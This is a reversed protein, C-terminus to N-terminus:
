HIQALSRERGSTARPPGAADAIRPQTQAAPHTSPPQAAPGRHSVQRDEAHLEVILAKARALFAQRERLYERLQDNENELREVVSEIEAVEAATRENAPARCAAEANCVRQMLQALEAAEAESLSGDRERERLANYRKRDQDTFM